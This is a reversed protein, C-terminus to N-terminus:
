RGRAGPSVALIAALDSEVSDQPKEEIRGQEIGDTLVIITPTAVVAYREIVDKPESMNEDLGVLTLHIQPNHAADLTALLAPLVEKCTTCWTGFCAVIEIPGRVASLERVVAVDPKYLHARRAYVPHRSELDARSVPGVLPPAPQILIRQNADTFHIRGDKDTVFLGADRLPPATPKCLGGDAALVADKPYAVARGTQLDLVYAIELAAPLLLMSQYDASDFIEGGTPDIAPRSQPDADAPAVPAVQMELSVNEAWAPAPAHSEGRADRAAVTGIALAMLLSALRWARGNWTM